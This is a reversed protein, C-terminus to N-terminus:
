CCQQLWNTVLTKNSTASLMGQHKIKSLFSSLGALAMALGHDDPQNYAGEVSKATEPHGKAVAAM